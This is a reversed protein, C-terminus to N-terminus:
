QKRAKLFMWEHHCYKCRYQIKFKEYLVMKYDSNSVRIYTPGQLIRPRSKRFVGILEEGLNEAAWFRDCNPCKSENKSDKFYKWIPIGGSIFLLTLLAAPM